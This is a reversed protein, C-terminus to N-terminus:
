SMTVLPQWVLMAHPPAMSQQSPSKHLLATGVPGLTMRRSTVEAMMVTKRQPEPLAVALFLINRHQVKELTIQVVKFIFM